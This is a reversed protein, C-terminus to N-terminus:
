AAQYGTLWQAGFAWGTSLRYRRKRYPANWPQLHGPDVMSLPAAKAPATMALGLLIAAVWVAVSPPKRGTIVGVVKWYDLRYAKCIRDIYEESPRKVLGDRWQYILGSSVQLRRAMDLWVGKHHERCIWAVLERFNKVEPPM